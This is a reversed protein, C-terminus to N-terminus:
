SIRVAYDSLAAKLIRPQSIIELQLINIKKLRGQGLYSM